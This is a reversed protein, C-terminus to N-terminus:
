ADPTDGPSFDQVGVWFKCSFSTTHPVFRHPKNSFSITVFINHEAAEKLADNLHLLEREVAGLCARQDENISPM